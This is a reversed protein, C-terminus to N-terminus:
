VSSNGGDLTETGSALASGGDYAACYAAMADGGNLIAACVAGCTDTCANGGDLSVYESGASGGDYAACYEARSDGGDLVAACVAAIKQCNRVCVDSLEYVEVVGTTFGTTHTTEKMVRGSAWFGNVTARRRVSQTYMSADRNGSSTVREKGTSIPVLFGPIDHIQEPRKSQQYSTYLLFTLFFTAFIGQLGFKM